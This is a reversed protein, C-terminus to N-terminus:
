QGAIAPRSSNYVSEGPGAGAQKAKDEVDQCPISNPM